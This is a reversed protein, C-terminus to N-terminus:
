GFLTKAKQFNMMACRQDIIGVAEVYSFVVVAKWGIKEFYAIWEKQAPSPRNPKVKIELALTIEPFILDVFGADSGLYWFLFREFDTRRGELPSHHFKLGPYQLRVYQIIQHHMIDEPRLFKMFGGRSKGRGWQPNGKRM